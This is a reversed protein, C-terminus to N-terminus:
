RRNLFQSILATLARRQRAATWYKPEIGADYTIGDIAAIIIGATEAAEGAAYGLQTLMEALQGRGVTYSRANAAAVKSNGIAMATFALWIAQDRRKTATTSLTQDLLLGLSVNEKLARQATRDSHKKSEEWAATVLDEKSSFWHNILGITCGANRAVARMSLGDIGKQALVNLASRVIRTRQQAADRQLPM